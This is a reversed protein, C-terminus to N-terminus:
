VNEAGCVGMRSAIFDVCKVEAKKAPQGLQREQEEPVSSLHPPVPELIGLVPLHLSDSVPRPLM